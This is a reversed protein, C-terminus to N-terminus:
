AVEAYERTGSWPPQVGDRKATEFEDGKIKELAEAPDIGHMRAANLGVFQAKMEATVEPYGKGDILERPMEFDSLADLSLQPHMVPLGSAFLIQEPSGWYLMEGLSEAFLRPRTSAFALTCELNAYFNPYARLYMATEEVFAFGAHVMQFNMDPFRTLASEMDGIKAYDVSFHAPIAKHIAVNRIGLDHAAELVPLAYNSDDLRWERMEREYYFAPYFKLGEIGLENVQYELQKIASDADFTEITGYVIFRDPWRDRIAAMKHVDCTPGITFGMNPLSHLIAIDCASEAFAAHASGYIPFDTLYEDQTLCWTAPDTTYLKHNGHAFAMQERRASDVWNAEGLNFPHVTADIVIHGDLV